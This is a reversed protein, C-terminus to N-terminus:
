QMLVSNKVPFIIIFEFSKGSNNCEITNWEISYVVNNHNKSEKSIKKKRWIWYFTKWEICIGNWQLSADKKRM